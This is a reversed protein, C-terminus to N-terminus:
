TWQVKHFRGILSMTSFEGAGTCDLYWDTNAFQLNVYIDLM